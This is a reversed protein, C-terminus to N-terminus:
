CSSIEAYSCADAKNGKESYTYLIAYQQNCNELLIEFPKKLAELVWPSDAVPSLEVALDRLTVGGGAIVGGKLAARVANIADDVRYRKETIETDTAGGIKIVGVRGEIIAVRERLM